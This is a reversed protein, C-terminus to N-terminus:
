DAVAALGLALVALAVQLAGKQEGGAPAGPSPGESARAGPTLPAGDGEVDGSRPRASASDALLAGTSKVTKASKVPGVANSGLSSRSAKAEIEASSTRCRPAGETPSHTSWQRSLASGSESPKRSRVSVDARSHARLVADDESDDKASDDTVEGRELDAEEAVPPGEGASAHGDMLAADDLTMEKVSSAAEGGGGGTDTQM